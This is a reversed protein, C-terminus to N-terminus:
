VDEGSEKQIDKLVDKPIRVKRKKGVLSKPNRQLGKRYKPPKSACKECILGKLTEDLYLVRCGVDFRTSIQRGCRMCHTETRLSGTKQKTMM